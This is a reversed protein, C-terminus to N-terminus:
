AVEPHIDGQARDDIDHAALVRPEGTPVEARVGRDHGSGAARGHLLELRGPDRRDRLM